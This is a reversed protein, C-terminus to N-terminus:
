VLLVPDGDDTVVPGGDDHVAQTGLQEKAVQEKAEQDDKKLSDLMKKKMESMFLISAEDEPQFMCLQMYQQQELLKNRKNTSETLKHLAAIKDSELKMLSKERVAAKNGQLPNDIQPAVVPITSGPIHEAINEEGSQVSRKKNTPKKVSKGETDWKDYDKLYDWCAFHEFQADEACTLEGESNTQFKKNYLKTADLLMDDENQGSKKLLAISQVWSGFRCVDKQLVKWKCRLSEATRFCISNGCAEVHAEVAHWFRSDTQDAGVSADTSVAIFAKCISLNEEPTYNKQRKPTDRQQTNAAM